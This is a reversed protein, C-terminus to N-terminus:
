EERGAEGCEDCFEFLCKLCRSLHALRVLAGGCFPCFQQQNEAPLRSERRVYTSAAYTEM